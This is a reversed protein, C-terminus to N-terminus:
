LPRSPPTGLRIKGKSFGRRDLVLWDFEWFGAQNRRLNGVDLTFSFYPNAHEVHVDGTFTHPFERDLFQQVLNRVDAGAGSPLTSCGSAFSAIIMALIVVAIGLLIRRALTRNM